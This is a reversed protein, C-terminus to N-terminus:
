YRLTQQNHERVKNQATTKGPHPQGNGKICTATLTCGEVLQMLSREGAALPDAVIPDVPDVPAVPVVPEVPRPAQDTM